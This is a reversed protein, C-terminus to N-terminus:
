QNRNELRQQLVSALPVGATVLHDIISSYAHLALADAQIQQGSSNWLKQLVAATRVGSDSTAWLANPNSARVVCSNLWTIVTPAPLSNGLSELMTLLHNYHLPVHGVAAVWRDILGTFLHAHGWEETLLSRGRRVFVILSLPESVTRRRREYGDTIEPRELLWEGLKRWLTVSDEKLPALFALHNYIFQEQLDAMLNSVRPWSNQVPEILHQRIEELTLFRALSTAWDFISINWMYFGLSHEDSSANGKPLNNTITWPLLEDLFNLLLRKGEAEKSLDALPLEKLGQAALDWLFDVDNTQGLSPLAPVNSQKINSIHLEVLKALRQEEAQQDRATNEAAPDDWDPEGRRSKMSLSLVLALCNWCLVPDISWGSHLGSFVAEVVQLRESAVMKLLQLRTELDAEGRVVLSGLGAAASVKPDFPLKTDRAHLFNDAEPAQAAALLIERCWPIIEENGSRREEQLWDSGAVLLAAPVAAIAYLRMSVSMWRMREESDERDRATREKIHDPQQVYLRVTGDPQREGFYNARDCFVQFIEMQERLSETAKTDRREEECTFPLDTTFKLAANVFQKRLDEDKSFVYLAALSRIERNRQPAKDRDANIINHLGFKDYPDPVTGNLTQDITFRAIDMTWFAPQSVLPLAARLCRTQHALAVSLCVGAIAVSEAESLVKDFLEEADRGQEIQREMWMELTMLASTVAQPAQYTPRFWSYVEDSGWLDRMGSPMIVRVPLPTIPPGDFHPVQARVKWRGTATNVLARILRLGEDENEGLVAFFPRQLMSPPFFKLDGMVGFNKVDEYELVSAGDEGPQPKYTLYSIAYNVYDTTLHKTLPVYEDFVQERAAHSGHKGVNQIYEAVRLPLSDASYLVIKRLRRVYEKTDKFM